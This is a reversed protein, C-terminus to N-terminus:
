KGRKSLIFDLYENMQKVEDETLEKILELLKKEEPTIDAPKTEQDLLHSVPVKFYDAIKSLTASHPMKGQKWYTVSSKSLKLECVVATPTTGREQCLKKFNDWFM